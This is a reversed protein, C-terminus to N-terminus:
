SAAPPAASWPRGTPRRRRLVPFRAPVFGLSTYLDIGDETAALEVVTVQHDDFWELLATVCARAHGRRRRRPDTSVNFLHGSRGTPNRPSPAGDEVTGVAASVVGLEPDDVVFAGCDGGALHTAFWRATNARWAADQDGPPVGMDRFMQARLRVLADIDAAAAPRVTM